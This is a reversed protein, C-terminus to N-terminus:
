LPKSPPGVLQNGSLVCKNTLLPSPICCVALIQFTDINPPSGCINSSSASCPVTEGSPKCIKNKRSSTSKRCGHSALASPRFGCRRAACPGSCEPFVVVTHDAVQDGSPRRM